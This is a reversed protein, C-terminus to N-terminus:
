PAASMVRQSVIALGARIGLRLGKMVQRAERFVRKGQGWERDRGEQQLMKRSHIESTWTHREDGKSQWSLALYCCLQQQSDLKHCVVSSFTFEASSESTSLQAAPIPGVETM